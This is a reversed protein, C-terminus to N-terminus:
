FNYVMKLYKVDKFKEGGFENHLFMPGAAAGTRIMDQSFFVHLPLGMLLREQNM